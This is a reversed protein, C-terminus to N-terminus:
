LFGELQKTSQSELGSISNPVVKSVAGKGIRVIAFVISLTIGVAVVAYVIWGASLKPAVLSHGDGKVDNM